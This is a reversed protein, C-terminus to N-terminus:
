FRIRAEESPESRVGDASIAVIHYFYTMGRIATVDTHTFVNNLRAVLVPDEGRVVRYVEYEVNATDVSANWELLVGSTTARLTLGNPPSPQEFPIMASVVGSPPGAVFQRNLTRVSYTYAVGRVASTDAFYNNTAYLTDSRGGSQRLVQYLMFDAFSSELDQWQVFILDEDPTATLGLPAPIQPLPALPIVMITDSSTGTVHSKSYARITYEYSYSPNLTDLDVFEYVRVTDIAPVLPVMLEHTQGSQARYLWFGRTDPDSHEWRLVVGSETAEATFYDPIPPLDNSVFSSAFSSSRKRVDSMKYELDFYYFYPTAPRANDDVYDTQRPDLIAIQEFGDVSNTSRYLTMQKILDSLPLQWAIRISNSSSDGIASISSPMPMELYDLAPLFVTDPAAVVRGSDDYAEVFYSYLYHRQLTSDSFIYTLTDGKARVFGEVDLRQFPRGMESRHLAVKAPIPRGELYWVLEAYGPAQYYNASAHHLKSQALSANCFGLAVLISALIRMTTQIMSNNTPHPRNTSM